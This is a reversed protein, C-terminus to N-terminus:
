YTGSVSFNKIGSISLIPHGKLFPDKRNSHGEVDGLWGHLEVPTAPLYRAQEEWFLLAWGLRLWLRDCSRLAPLDAGRNIDVHRLLPAGIDFGHLSPPSQHPEQTGLPLPPLVGWLHHGWHLAGKAEGLYGQEAQRLRCVVNCRDKSIGNILINIFIFM